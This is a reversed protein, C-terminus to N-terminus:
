KRLEPFGVLRPDEVVRDIRLFKFYRIIIFHHGLWHVQACNLVLQVHILVPM